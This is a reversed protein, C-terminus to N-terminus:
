KQVDVDDVSVCGKEGDGVPEQVVAIVFFSFSFFQM